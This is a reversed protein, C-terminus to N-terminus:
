PIDDGVPYDMHEHRSLSWCSLKRAAPNGESAAEEGETSTWCVAPTSLYRDPSHAPVSAPAVHMSFSGGRRAEGRGGRTVGIAPPALSKTWDKGM